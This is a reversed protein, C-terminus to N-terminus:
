GNNDMNDYGGYNTMVATYDSMKTIHSSLASWSEAAIWDEYLADPVIVKYTDNTNAFTNESITPVATASQFLVIELSTCGNFTGDLGDTGVASLKSFDATKLSTCGSYADKMGGEDIDTMNPFSVNVINTNNTFGRYLAYYGVEVVSSVDTRTLVGNNVSGIAIVYDTKVENTKKEFVTSDTAIQTLEFVQSGCTIAYKVAGTGTSAVNYIKFGAITDAEATLEVDDAAVTFEAETPTGNNEIKIGIAFDSYPAVWFKKPSPKALDFTQTYIKM